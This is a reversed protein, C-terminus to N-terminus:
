AAIQELAAVLAKPLDARKKALLASVQSLQSEGKLELVVNVAAIVTVAKRGDAFLAHSSDMSDKFEVDSM